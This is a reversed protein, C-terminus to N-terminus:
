GQAGQQGAQREHSSSGTSTSTIPNPTPNASAAIKPSRPRRGLAVAGTGLDLPADASGACRLPREQARTTGGGAPDSRPARGGALDGPEDRDIGTSCFTACSISTPKAPGVRRRRDELPQGRACRRRASARPAGVVDVGRLEADESASSWACTVRPSSSALREQARHLLAALPVRKAPRGGSRARPRRLTLSAAASAGICPASTRAREPQVRDPRRRELDPRPRRPSPRARTRRRAAALHGGVRLRLTVLRRRARGAAAGACKGPRPAARSAARPPAAWRRASARPAACGRGRATGRPSGRRCAPSRPRARATCWRRSRPAPTATALATDVLRSRPLEAEAADGDGVVQGVRRSRPSTSRGVGRDVRQAGADVQDVDRARRASWSAAYAAHQVRACRPSRARASAVLRQQRPRERSASWRGSRTPRRPRRACAGQRPTIEDAYELDAGVPLGSALRTVPGDPAREHLLTPSTSRPRRAPPRRTPPSSSRASATRSARSRAARRHAPGRPRRRRDAVARRRARPLPRRVREHARDLHRREAGRRRLDRARRPARGPLDPLAPRRRPQLLGRVGGGDGQGRPDRRRARARGGESRAPHPVRAAARHAPRRRAPALETILRNVPPALVALM